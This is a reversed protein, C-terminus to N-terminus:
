SVPVELSKLFCGQRTGRLCGAMLLTVHRLDRSSEIVDIGVRITHQNLGVAHHAM